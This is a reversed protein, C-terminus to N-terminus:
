PLALTALFLYQSYDTGVLQAIEGAPTIESGFQASSNDLSITLEGEIVGVLCQVYLVRATAAGTMGCPVNLPIDGTGNMGQFAVTIISM